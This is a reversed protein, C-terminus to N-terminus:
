GLFRGTKYTFIGYMSCRPKIKPVREKQSLHEGCRGCHTIPLRSTEHRKMAQWAAFVHRITKTKSPLAKEYPLVLPHTKKKGLMTQGALALWCTTWKSFRTWLPFLYSIGQGKHIMWVYVEAKWKYKERQLRVHGTALAEFYAKLSQCTTCVHQYQKGNRQSVHLKQNTTQFM